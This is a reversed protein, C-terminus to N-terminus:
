YGRRPAGPAARLATALAQAQSPKAPALLGAGQGAGPAQAPGFLGVGRSNGFRGSTTVPATSGIQPPSGQSKRM